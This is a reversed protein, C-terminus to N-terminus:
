FIYSTFFELQLNMANSKKQATYDQKVIYNFALHLNPLTLLIAFPPDKLRMFIGPANLARTSVPQLVHMCLNLHFRKFYPSGYIM